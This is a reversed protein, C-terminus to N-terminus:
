STVTAETRSRHVKFGPEHLNGEARELYDFWRRAADLLWMGHLWVTCITQATGRLLKM